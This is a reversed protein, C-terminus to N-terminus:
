PRDTEKMKDTDCLCIKTGCCIKIGVRSPLCAGTALATIYNVSFFILVASCAALAWRVARS